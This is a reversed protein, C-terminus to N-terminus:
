EKYEIKNLANLYAKISAGIIDTSVGRGSYLKGGDRLKVLAEGIAERGETIAQIQFDDLEYHHGTINEIAKFAADIPGDGNSLGYMEKGEKQLSVSATSVLINGSNIVYNNLKYTASVQLATSAIIFDLERLNVSKKKSLKVYEEYVKASDDANLDYGRNKIIENLEEQTASPNLSQSDDDPLKDQKDTKQTKTLMAIRSASRVLATTNLGSYVNLRDGLTSVLQAIVELKPASGGTVSCKIGIAGAKIGAFVCSAALSLNNNCLIALSVNSLAPVKNYLDQLFSYYEQSLLTGAHDSITIITAGKDIALAVMKALFDFDSRTADEFSVEVDDIYYKAHSILKTMTELVKDPKQHYSYEMQAFSAPISIAIRKHKAGQIANWVKDIEQTTKGAFCTLVSNKLFTAITRSLVLDTKDEFSPQLEISDVKLEDLRKAIELKEKFSLGNEGLRMSIDSIFLRKM